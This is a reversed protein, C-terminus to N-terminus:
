FKVLINQSIITKDIGAESKRLLFEATDTLRLM